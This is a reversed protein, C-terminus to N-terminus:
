HSLALSLLEINIEHQLLQATQISVDLSEFPGSFWGPIHMNKELIKRRQHKHTYIWVCITKSFDEAKVLSFAQAKCLCSTKFIRSRIHLALCVTIQVRLNYNAFISRIDIHEILINSYIPIFSLIAM